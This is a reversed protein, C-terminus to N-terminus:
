GVAELAGLYEELTIGLEKMELAIETGVYRYHWPEYIIGTIESADSPYRLIFGYEWCHAMLWQQTATDEQEKDLNKYKDDVIDVALGLQHESTGPIAVSKGALRTAEERDYGQQMWRQIRNEYLWEQNETTRYASVLAPKHGAAACAELFQQLPAYCEEAIYCIGEWSKLAVEYDEPIYNWPNVLVIRVGHPSFHYTAGDIRTEGIAMTGDSHFYYEDGYLNLWGTHLTGDEKIYYHRGQYETMGETRQLKGTEDYLVLAGSRETVGTCAGEETLLYVDGGITLPGLAMAGSAYFYFRKGDIEQWGTLPTGDTSLYYHKGADELWGASLYGEESFHYTVGDIEQWGTVPKGRDDLYVTGMDTDTWINVPAAQQTCGCLLMCGLMLWILTKKM